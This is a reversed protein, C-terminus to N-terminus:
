HPGSNGRVARLYFMGLLTLLPIANPSNSVHSLCDDEFARVIHLIVDARSVYELTSNGLARGQVLILNNSHLPIKVRASAIVEYSGRVLGATDVVTLSSGVVSSAQFAAKIFDQRSDAIEM